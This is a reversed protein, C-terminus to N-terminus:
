TFAFLLLPKSKLHATVQNSGWAEWLLRSPSGDSEWVLYCISGAPLFVIEERGLTPKISTWRRLRQVLMLGVSPWRKKNAEQDLSTHVATTNEWCPDLWVQGDPDAFPTSRPHLAQICEARM